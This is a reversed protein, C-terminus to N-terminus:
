CSFLLLLLSEATQLPECFIPPSMGRCSPVEQNLMMRSFYSQNLCDWLLTGEQLTEGSLGKVQKWSEHVYLDLYRFQIGLCLNNILGNIQWIYNQSGFHWARHQVWLTEQREQSDQSLLWGWVGACLVTGPMNVCHTYRNLLHNSDLEKM